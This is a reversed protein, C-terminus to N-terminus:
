AGIMGRKKAERGLEEMAAAVYADVYIAVKEERKRSDNKGFREVRERAAIHILTGLRRAMSRRENPSAYRELLTPELRVKLLAWGLGDSRGAALAEDDTWGRM